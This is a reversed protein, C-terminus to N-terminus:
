IRSLAARGQHSVIKLRAAKKAVKRVLALIRDELEGKNEPKALLAFRISRDAYPRRASQSNFGQGYVMAYLIPSLTRTKGPRLNFGIGYEVYLWKGGGGISHMAYVYIRGGRRANDAVEIEHENKNEPKRLCSSLGATSFDADIHFDITASRTRSSTGAPKLNPGLDTAISRMNSLLAQFQVPGEALADRSNIRGAKGWPKLFRHFFRYLTEQNLPEVVLGKERLYKYLLQSAYTPAKGVHIALRSLHVRCQRFEQIEELEEYSPPEKSLLMFDLKNRKCFHLYDSLQARGKAMAPALKDRYKLEVLAEPRGDVTVVLDARRLDSATKFSFEPQLRLLGSRYIRSQFEQALFRRFPAPDVDCTEALLVAIYRGGFESKFYGQITSFFSAM